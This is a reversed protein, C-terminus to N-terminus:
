TTQSRSAQTCTSGFVPLRPTFEMVSMLHTKKSGPGPWSSPSSINKGSGIVESTVQPLPSSCSDIHWHGWNQGHCQNPRPTRSYPRITVDPYHTSLLNALPRPLTREWYSAVVCHSTTSPFPAHEFNQPCSTFNRSLGAVRLGGKEEPSRSFPSLYGSITTGLVDVTM